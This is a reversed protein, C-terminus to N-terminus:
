KKGKMKDAIRDFAEAIFDIQALHLTKSLSEANWGM